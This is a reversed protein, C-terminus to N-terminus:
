QSSDVRQQWYTAQKQDKPLGFWGEQYGVALYEQAIYYGNDAAKHYWSVAKLEDQEVGLGSHYMLALNFQALANGKVALPEWMQVATKYDGTEAAIFGQNYSSAMGISCASALIIGTCWTSVTKVFSM